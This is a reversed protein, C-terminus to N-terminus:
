IKQSAEGVYQLSYRSCIISYNVNPPDCNLSYTDSPTICKTKISGTSIPKNQPFLM